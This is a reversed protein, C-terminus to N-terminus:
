FKIRIDLVKHSAAIKQQHLIVPGIIVRLSRMTLLFMSGEFLTYYLPVLQKIIPEGHSAILSLLSCIFFFMWFIKSETRPRRWAQRYTPLAGIFHALLSITLNVLPARFLTWVVISAVLLGLCIIELRGFHRRGNQISFVLMLGSGFVLISSLLLSSPSSHSVLVGALTNINLLFWVARSFLNPRYNGLHINRVAFLYAGLGTIMISTFLLTHM